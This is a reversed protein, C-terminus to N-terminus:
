QAAISQSSATQIIQTIIHKIDNALKEYGRKPTFTVSNLYLDRNIEIQIAEIGTSPRGYHSTVFGGAYPHNIVVSYGSKQFLSKIMTLTAPHCSQGFKDGLIIDPRRAGMPGFGPMSHCDILLAQGFADLAEDIIGRLAKHYPHYLHTLRAQAEAKTLDQTYIPLADNIHTPIVGIGAQTRASPETPTDSWEQPLEDSARNVDVFCRPFQASLLPAGAIFAPAFLKDIFMDENRRLQSIDLQSNQVFSEPYVNGSHPSAFIIGARWISPRNLIHGPTLGSVDSALETSNSGKRMRHAHRLRALNWTSPTTM